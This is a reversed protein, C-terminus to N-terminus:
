PSSPAASRKVIRIRVTPDPVWAGSWARVDPMLRAARARDHAFVTLERGRLVGLIVIRRAADVVALGKVSVHHPQSASLLVLGHGLPKLPEPIGGLVFGFQWGLREPHTTSPYDDMLPVLDGSENGFFANAEAIVQDRTGDITWALSDPAAIAPCAALLGGSLLLVCAFHRMM